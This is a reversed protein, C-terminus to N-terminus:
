AQSGGGARNDFFREVGAKDFGQRQLEPTQSDGKSVRLYGLKM